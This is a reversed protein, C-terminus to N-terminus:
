SLPYPFGYWCVQNCIGCDICEDENVECRKETPIDIIANQPCRLVCDGCDYCESPIWYTM